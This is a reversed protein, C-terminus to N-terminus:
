TGARTGYAHMYVSARGLFRAQELARLGCVDAPMCHIGNHAVILMCAHWARVQM